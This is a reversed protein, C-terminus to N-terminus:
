AKGIQFVAVSESLRHAQERLSSSAAAAEEVLAANQQTTQDLQQMAQDIQGVGQSQETAASTIQAIRDSVQEVQSVIDFMSRGAESVLAAGAEVHQGSDAILGKIQRAAEASRGSLSRVETAVVAFGRGQEGARAAEVAANLALINTQFAIGDIVGIIEAIRRSSQQIQDMTAVVREVVQGGNRAMETADLAIRTAEQAHQATSRITSSLQETSAATQQLSSAQEETRSSLDLNGQAIQASATAVNEVGERVTAVVESLGQRMAAMSAMVSGGAFDAHGVHALDGAAIRNAIAALTEPEAGLQRNLRRTILITAAVSALIALAGVVLITRLMRANTAVTDNFVSAAVRVQLAILRDLSEQMPPSAPSVGSDILGRADAYRHEALAQAVPKLGRDVYTAMAAASADALVHEEDTLYTAMYDHWQKHAVHRNADFEKLRRATQADDGRVAADALIVRDRNARYRIEGLQQLAVTRDEYLTKIAADSRSLAHYSVLVIALMMMSLVAFAAILRRAVTMTPHQLASPTTHM